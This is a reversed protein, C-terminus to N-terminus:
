HTLTHALYHMVRSYLICVALHGDLFFRFYGSKFIPYINGFLEGAVHFVLVCLAAWGRIGDIEKIRTNETQMQSDNFM